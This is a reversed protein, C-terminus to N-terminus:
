DFSFGKERFLRLCCDVVAADYLRGRHLAIEKLAKEVGHSPRYPRHSSMAEAVDAVSIIRAELLIEGNKLNNPYGSGDLREHHQYIIQALPWPFEISKLIDYGVQSHTRIISFEIDTLQGPKSLIEAPVYIKGLDHIDGAMRIGEIQEQPLGMDQAIACSLKSVRRQHGATYPDRMEITLRMAQITGALAKQLRDWSARLDAETRKRRTIDRFVLVNGLCRKRADIFATVTQEISITEGSKATLINEVAPTPGNSPGAPAAPRDPLIEALPRKLVDSQNWGTLREALPNMFSIRDEIDTAIVGDGISKLITSLWQERERLTKDMKAKYFAMEITTQLEREDFPKLLYGFPETVKARSLTTEDAYATLYIVPIEYTEWIREAAVIGDIKGKLVIDMLILDPNSKRLAVLAEEGTSLVDMVEYGLGRLMNQIDKAVLSEDEVVLIKIKPM